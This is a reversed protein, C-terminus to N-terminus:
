DWLHYEEDAGDPDPRCKDCFYQWKPRPADDKCKMCPRNWMDPRNVRSLAVVYKAGEFEALGERQLIRKLTDVCVSMHVSMSIYSDGNDIARRLFEREEPTLVRSKTM